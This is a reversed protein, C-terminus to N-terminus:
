DNLSTELFEFAQATIAQDIGIVLHRNAYVSKYTWGMRKSMTRPTYPPIVPDGRAITVFVKADKADDLPKVDGIPRQTAPLDDCFRYTFAETGMYFHRNKKLAYDGFITSIRKAASSSVNACAARSSEPTPLPGAMAMLKTGDGNSAENIAIFLSQPDGEAIANTAARAITDFDIGAGLRGLRLNTKFQSFAQAVNANTPCSLHSACWRMATVVAAQMSALQQEAQRVMSEAPDQPSDLVAALVQIPQTMVLATAATAGTGWGMVAFKKVGLAKKVALVDDVDDLSSMVNVATLEVPSDVAGRPAVAIVTYDRSVAGLKLPADEVLTRADDGFTRDPLLMLVPAKKESSLRRYVSVKITNGDVDSGVRPVDIRACEIAGCPLWEVNTSVVDDVDENTSSNDSACGALLTVAVCIVGIVARRKM